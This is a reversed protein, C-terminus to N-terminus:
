AAEALRGDPQEPNVSRLVRGTASLRLANAVVLISSTSMAVAAVLPTVYGTVALPLALANYFVSLAINQRMLLRANKAIVIAAPVSELSSGLFVLDAANRGVDAATSPAMSVFAAGLAPADNLGDGVMLTRRGQARLAELREVKGCPLMGAAAAEIGVLDAVERVKAQTDGSLIEVGMGLVLLRRVAYVAGPRLSDSVELEGRVRGDVSLCLGSTVSSHGAGGEAWSRRGLRYLQGSIKGEIGCGPEERVEAAEIQASPRMAAVARSSPHRSFKALSAAKELDDSGLTHAIVRPLGATLVGTKDLAVYDAEALKELASGDKLTMGM